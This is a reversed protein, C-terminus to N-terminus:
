FVDEHTIEVERNVVNYRLPFLDYSHFLLQGQEKSLYNAFSHGVGQWSEDLVFRLSKVYPYSKSAIYLPYPQWYYDATDTKVGIIQINQIKSETTNSSPHLINHMDLVGIATPKASVYDLLSDVSGASYTLKNLPAGALVTDRFYLANSSKANEFVFETGSKDKDSLRNKVEQLKLYKIPSSKGSVLAIGDRALEGIYLTAGNQKAVASENPTLSRTILIMRVERHVLSKVCEVESKHLVKIKVKPYQNQFIRVQADMVQAYNQDVAITMEGDYPNDPNQNPADCGYLVLMVWALYIWKMFRLHKLPSSKM